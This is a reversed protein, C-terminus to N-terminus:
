RKKTNTRKVFRKKKKPPQVVPPQTIEKPTSAFSTLAEYKQALTQLEARLRKIDAEQTTVRGQLLQLDDVLLQQSLDLQNLSTSADHAPAVAAQPKAAAIVPPKASAVPQSEGAFYRWGALCFVIAIAAIAAITVRPGTLL